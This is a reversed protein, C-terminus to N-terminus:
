PGRSAVYRRKGDKVELIVAPKIANRNEDLTIRGTVGDFSELTALADRLEEKDTTDADIIAALAYKAADYGLAAYADPQENLEQVYAEVFRKVGPRPDGTSYHTTFYSGELIETTGGLLENTDWGDGGLLVANLDIDKKAQAIRRIETHYGPVYIADPKAEKVKQLLATFSEDEEQYHEFAVIEGGLKTFREKFAEALGLSYDSGLDRLVAVRALKLEEKAYKAMVEAQFPDAFCLRFVYSGLATVRPNTASPTILPTLARQAVPAMALAANSTVEGILVDAQVETILRRVADRAQEPVGMDDIHVAKVKRGFVGGARNQEAIALDVGNKTAVGYSAQPGTLPVVVGFLIPTTDKKEVCGATIILASLSLARLM